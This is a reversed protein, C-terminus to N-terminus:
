FSYNLILNYLNLNVKNFILKPNEIQRDLANKRVYLAKINLGKLFGTFAHAIELNYQAYSPMAYKNLTFNKTSPLYYRGASAKLSLNQKPTFTLNSSFANVDGLGENRERPLFTYFPDRGWERPMLYRGNKGIRTYNLDLNYKEIKRSVRTSFVNAKNNQTIYFENNSKLSYQRILLVESSWNGKKFNINGYWNQFLQAVTMSGLKGSLMKKDIPLSVEALLVGKTNINGAYKSPNGNVDLGSSYIGISESSKYWKVTSRPSFATLWSLRFDFRSTKFRTDLGRVLTPSMRGDQANIFLFDPTFQGYLIKSKKYVYKVWLDELRYLNSKNTPDTVDFLGLEYRNPNRTISDPESFDSSYANIIFYGSMGASLGKFTPTKYGIGAGIGLGHYDTLPNENDTNMYYIRSKGNAKGNRFFDGITNVSDQKQASLTNIFFFM